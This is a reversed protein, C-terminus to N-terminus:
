FSFLFKESTRLHLLLSLGTTLIHVFAHVFNAYLINLTQTVM